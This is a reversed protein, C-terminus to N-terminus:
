KQIDHSFTAIQNKQMHYGTKGVGNISSAIKKRNYIRAEKTEMLLCYFYPNIQPSSIRNWQDLVM